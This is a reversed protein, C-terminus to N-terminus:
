FRDMYRGPPPTAKVPPAPRYVPAMVKKKFSLFRKVPGPKPTFAKRPAAHYSSKVPLPEYKKDAEHVYWGTMVILVVVFVISAANDTMDKFGEWMTRLFWVIGDAVGHLLPALAKLYEAIVSILSPAFIMLLVVGVAGIGLLASVGTILNWIDSMM